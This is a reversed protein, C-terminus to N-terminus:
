YANSGGWGSVLTRLIIKIDLWLSWHEIYYLDYEIRRQMKELTETEGRLGHIQAWGTIGPKVRHRQMYADIRNAFSHNLALPHPRPGVVSMEGRLVNIFQPLEDLSTRRLFRGITTVRPDHHQAQRSDDTQETAQYMTRFKLIQIVQGDWGHRKQRFFIPGPSGQRILFAIILLVPALLSLAFLAILKDLGAKILANHGTLPSTNLDIVTMGAAESPMHNLLTLMSLDPVYRVTLCSTQLVRIVAEQQNIASSDMAIWIEDIGSDPDSILTEMDTGPRAESLDGALQARVGFPSLIDIVQWKRDEAQQVKQAVARAFEGEGIILVRTPSQGLVPLKALLKALWRCLFVAALAYAFWYAMWLRSFEATTKTLTGALMLFAAVILLGPLVTGTNRWYSDDRWHKYAGTAPFVVFVLVTGLLLVSLYELSMNWRDWRIFYALWGAAAILLGDFLPALSMIPSNKFGPHSM